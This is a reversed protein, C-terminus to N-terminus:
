TRSQCFFLEGLMQM